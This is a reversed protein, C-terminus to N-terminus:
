RDAAGDSSSTAPTAGKIGFRMAPRGTEAAGVDPGSGTFNDNFNPLRVGRDYGPSNTAQQYLGGSESTWGHGAAYIPTGVHGNVEAGSVSVNGNYLDYDM